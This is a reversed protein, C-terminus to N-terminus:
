RVAGVVQYELLLGLVFEAEKFAAIAAVDSLDFFLFVVRRM